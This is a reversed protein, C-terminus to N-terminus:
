GVPVIPHEIALSPNVYEGPHDMSPYKFLPKLQSWDQATPNSIMDTPTILVNTDASLNGTQPNFHIISFMGSARIV